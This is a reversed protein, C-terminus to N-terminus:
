RPISAALTARAPEDARALLEELLAWGLESHRAEDKVIRDLARQAVPQTTHRRMERFLPRAVTEGCCYVDAAVLLARELLPSTPAHPLVLHDGSVDIAADSGGAALYVERSLEAHALEDGVVRQCDQLTDPSVGLRFLWHLLEATISASGYEARVRKQWERVVRPSGAPGSPGSETAAM